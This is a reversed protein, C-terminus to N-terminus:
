WMPGSNAFRGRPVFNSTKKSDAEAEKQNSFPGVTETETTVGRDSVDVNINNIVNLGMSGMDPQYFASMEASNSYKNTNELGKLYGGDIDEWAKKDTLLRELDMAGMRTFIAEAEASVGTLAYILSGAADEVSEAVNGLGAAVADMMAILDDGFLNQFFGENEKTIKILSETDDMLIKMEPTLELGITGALSTFAAIAADGEMRMRAQSEAVDLGSEMLNIQARAIPADSTIQNEYDALAEQADLLALELDEQHGQGLRLGREAAKVDRELQKRTLKERRTIQGGAGFDRSAKELARQADRFDLAAGLANTVAGVKKRVDSIVGEVVDRIANRPKDANEFIGQAIGDAIPMGVEFNFLKSPSSIGAYQKAADLAEDIAEVLERQIKKSGIQIGSAMGNFFDTALTKGAGFDMIDAASTIANQMRDNMQTSLLDDDDASLMEEISSSTGLGINQLLTELVDEAVGYEAANMKLLEVADFIFTAGQENTFKGSRVMAEGSEAIEQVADKFSERAKIADEDISNMAGGSEVLADTFSRLASNVNGQVDDLAFLRDTLQDWRSGFKDAADDLIKFRTELVGFADGVNMIDDEADGIDALEANLEHFHILTRRTVWDELSLGSEMLDKEDAGVALIEAWVKGFEEFKDIGLFDGTLLERNEGKGLEALMDEITDIGKGMDQNFGDLRHLKDMFAKDVLAMMAEESKADGAFARISERVTDLVNFAEAFNGLKMRSLFIEVPGTLAEEIGEDDGSRVFDGLELQQFNTTKFDELMEETQRKLDKEIGKMLAKIDADAAFEGGGLLNEIMETRSLGKGFIDETFIEDATVAFAEEIGKLTEEIAKENEATVGQGQFTAIISRAITTDAQLDGLEGAEDIIDKFRTLFDSAITMEEGASNVDRISAAFDHMPKVALEAVAKIDSIQGQAANLKKGVGESKKSLFQFAKVLGYIAGTILAIKFFPSRIFAKTVVGLSKSFGINAITAKGTALTYFEKAQVVRGLVMLYVGTAAALAGFSLAMMSIEKNKGFFRFVASLADLLKTIAVLLPTMSEGLEIFSTKMGAMAKDFKFKATESVKQFARDTDGASNALSAFIAENEQLNEGTIDMAGALARINPFVDAFAEANDISLDRLRKLVSLLGDSRAQAALEGQAIGMGRLAAETQRSPDLISQMIQRLQIASTRADTGTRTMAAIAAAVEHFQIGMASAVPIAKGIAPALRDAEVKGERVAATLVDVAAGGNLNEVGYANVASTAADAVVKTQGLGVAAGKASAEMVDMAAAGRLGASAVFFMADALEQPGRGTERSVRKVADAFQDVAGASVGVLAEIKKMSAEFQAFATLSAAGIALIPAGIFKFLNRGTTQARFALTNMAQSSESLARNTGQLAKNMPGVGKTIQGAGAMVGSPDLVISQVLPPLQVAM